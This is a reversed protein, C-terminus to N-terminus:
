VVDDPGTPSGNLPRRGTPSTLVDSNVVTGTANQAAENQAQTDSLSGSMASGSRCSSAYMSVTDMAARVGGCTYSYNATLFPNFGYNMGTNFSDINAGLFLFDWNYQTTQHEVMSKIQVQTFERSANEEGDTM